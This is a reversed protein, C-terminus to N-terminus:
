YTDVRWLRSAWSVMNTISPSANSTAIRHGESRANSYRVDRSVM